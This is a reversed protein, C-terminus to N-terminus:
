PMSAPERQRGGHTYIELREYQGPGPSPHPPTPMSPFWSASTASSIPPKQWSIRITSRPRLKISVKDADLLLLKRIDAIARVGGGVTLPM